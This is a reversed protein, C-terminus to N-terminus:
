PSGYTTRDITLTIWCGLFIKGNGCNPYYGAIDVSVWSIEGSSFPVAAIVPQAMARTIILRM